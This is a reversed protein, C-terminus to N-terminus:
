RKSSQRAARAKSDNPKYPEKRRVDAILIHRDYSLFTKKLSPQFQALAKGIGLRSAEAQSSQGGGAVNVTIDVKKGVDGSLILPEMIKMQYMKPKYIELPMTNIRIKGNGPKLTVRAIATKRKGSANITKVKAESKSM